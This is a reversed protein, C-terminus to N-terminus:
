CLLWDISTKLKYIPVPFKRAFILDGFIMSCGMDTFAQAMGFRDMGSVLLVKKQQSIYQMASKYVKGYQTGLYKKIRSGDVIPTKIAARAIPLAARLVYKRGNRGYLYLDIGGMGFVDVKGDM